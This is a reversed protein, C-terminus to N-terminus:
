AQWFPKASERRAEEATKGIDLLQHRNLEALARRTGNRIAWRTITASVRRLLGLSHARWIAVEASVLPGTACGDMRLLKQMQLEKAKCTETVSSTL